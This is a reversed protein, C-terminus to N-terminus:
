AGATFVIEDPVIGRQDQAIREDAAPAQDRFAEIMEKEGVRRGRIEVARDLPQAVREVVRRRSERRRQIVRHTHEPMDEGRARQKEARALQQPNKVNAFPFAPPNRERRTERPRHM